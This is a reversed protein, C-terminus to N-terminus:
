KVRFKEKADMGVEANIEIHSHHLKNGFNHLAKSLIAGYRQQM